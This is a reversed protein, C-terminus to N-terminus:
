CSHSSYADRGDDKGPVESRKSTRKATPQPDGIILRVRVDKWIILDSTQTGPNEPCIVSLNRPGTWAFKPSPFFRPLDIIDPSQKTDLPDKLDLITIYRTGLDTAGCDEMIDKVQYRGDPSIASQGWDLHACPVDFSRAFQTLISVAVCTISAVIAVIIGVIWVIKRKM